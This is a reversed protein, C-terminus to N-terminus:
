LLPVLLLLLWWPTARPVDIKQTATYPGVYGDPDIARVRMFYTGGDPKPLTITPERLTRNEIPQAFAEENALQFEFTQEPEAPWSFSLSKDDIKGPEPNAPPPRLQFRSAGPLNNPATNATPKKGSPM